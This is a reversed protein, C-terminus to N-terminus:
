IFRPVMISCSNSYNKISSHVLIPFYHDLEQVAIDHVLEHLIM